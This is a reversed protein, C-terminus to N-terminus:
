QCPQDGHIHPRTGVFLINLDGALLQKNSSNQNECPDNKYEFWSFNLITAFKRNVTMKLIQELGMAGSGMDNQGPVMDGFRQLITTIVRIQLDSKLTTRFFSFFMEQGLLPLLSLPSTALHHLIGAQLGTVLSTFKYLDMLPRFVNGCLSSGVQIM